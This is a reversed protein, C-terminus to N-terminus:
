IDKYIKENNEDSMAGKVIAIAKDLVEVAKKHQMKEVFTGLEAEYDVLREHKAKQEELQEVISDMREQQRQILDFANLVLKTGCDIEGYLPCGAVCSVDRCCELAKIIENDTMNILEMRILGISITNLLNEEKQLYIEEYNDVVYITPASNEIIGCISVADKRQTDIVTDGIFFEM